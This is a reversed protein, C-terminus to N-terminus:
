SIRELVKKTFVHDEILGHVILDKQFVSLQNFLIDVIMNGNLREDFTVLDKKLNELQIVINDNHSGLFDNVVFDAEEKTGEGAILKDVFAFLVREEELIHETLEKKYSEVFMILLRVSWYDNQLKMQMQLLTNELKPIWVGLYFDHSARLYTFIEELEYSEFDKENFSSVDTTLSELHNMFLDSVQFDENFRRSVLRKSFTDADINFLKTM